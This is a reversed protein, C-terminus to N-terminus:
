LEIIDCLIHLRAIDKPTIEVFCNALQSKGFNVGIYISTNKLSIENSTIKCFKTIYWPLKMKIVEMRLDFNDEIRKYLSYMEDQKEIQEKREETIEKICEQRMKYYQKELNDSLEYLSAQISKLQEYSKQEKM